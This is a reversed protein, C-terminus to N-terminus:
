EGVRAGEELFDAVDDGVEVYGVVAIGKVFPGVEELEDALLFFGDKM